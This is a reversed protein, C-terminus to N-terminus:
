AYAFEIAVGGHLKVQGPGDRAHKQLSMLTDTCRSSWRRLNSLCTHGRREQMFSPFFLPVFFDLLERKRVRHFSPAIM